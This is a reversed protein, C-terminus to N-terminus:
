SLLIWRLVWKKKIVGSYVINVYRTPVPKKSSLSDLSVVCHDAFSLLPHVTTSHNRWYGNTFHNWRLLPMTLYVKTRARQHCCCSVAERSGSLVKGQQQPDLAIPPATAAATMATLDTMAVVSRKGFQCAVHIRAPYSAVM